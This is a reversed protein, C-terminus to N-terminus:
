LELQVRSFEYPNLFYLLHEYVFAYTPRYTYISINYQTITYVHIINISCVSKESNGHTTEKTSPEGQQHSLHAAVHLLFYHTIISCV